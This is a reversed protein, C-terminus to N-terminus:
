LARAIYGPMASRVGFKRAEYNATTLMKMGGVAMPKGKLSPNDREEVSAYFADLDCHVFVRAFSLQESAEQAAEEALAEARKRERCTAAEWTRSMKEISKMTRESRERLRKMYPSSGSTALITAMVKEHDVGKVAKNRGYALRGAVTGTAGGPM